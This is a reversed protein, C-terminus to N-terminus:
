KLKLGACCYSSRPTQFQPIPLLHPQRVRRHQRPQQHGPPFGYLVLPERGAVFPVLGVVPIGGAGVGARVSKNRGHRPHQALSRPRPACPAAVHPENGASLSPTHVPYVQLYMRKPFARSGLSM